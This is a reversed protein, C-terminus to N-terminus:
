CNPTRVAEQAGFTEVGPQLQWQAAVYLHEQFSEGVGPLDILTQIGNNQLITPNGIGQPLTLHLEDPLYSSM